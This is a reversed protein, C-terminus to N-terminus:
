ADHPQPSIWQLRPLFLMAVRPAIKLLPAGDSPVKSPYLSPSSM